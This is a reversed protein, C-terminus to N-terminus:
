ATQMQLPTFSSVVTGRDITLIRDASAITEPRHAIIIRTMKLAAVAENVQKERLVDLHSTAEDLFLIRPRKYLARALLVRQKQGGSLVTGMDGVLTNFGMPMAKIDDLVAAVAACQEVWHMDVQADFFSINDRISGAFLVDDQLVTGVMARFADMGVQRVDHGGVAITGEQAPVIGLMVSMLTSKGCGSPGVIAVSEGADIDLDVGNLVWPEQEGYRFKLGRVRLSPDLVTEHESVGGADEPETLVIDGLREGQLQLMRFELLKDILSSSRDIFQAKYALFAVLIGVSFAGDMVYMAGLATLFLGELGFGIGNVVRFYLNLKQVRLGANIENTVLSLWSARRQDHKSFLKIAKVGRITELFHTNQKAASIIEKESASRTPYYWAWRVAGYLAVAVVCVATMAASYYLMLGLTILAMLGDLVAELFSTTLTRQIQDAAGFRSVVDGLTRKEFYQLPLRVLHTFINSRWQLRISTSMYMIIWSRMTSIAVQLVLLLGFGLTLLYLLPKDHSMLVDDIIVTMFYPSILSFVELALALLLIQVASSGLGHVSGILDRMRVAPAPPERRFQPNPWLELAVGTFSKSVEALTLRREGFAPDLVTAGQASVSTLVVFHNFNWHLICPLRLEGLDELDLRLPRTGLDVKTAIQVLHALAAGKLSVSFRSRMAALDVQNGYHNLIMTLCALGCEAAEIQLVLPVKPSRGFNLKDTLVM